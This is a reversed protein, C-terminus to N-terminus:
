RAAPLEIITLVHVPPTLGWLRAQRLILELLAGIFSKVLEGALLSPPGPPTRLAAHFGRCGHCLVWCWSRLSHPNHAADISRSVHACTWKLKTEEQM